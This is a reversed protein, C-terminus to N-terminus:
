FTSPKHGPKCFKNIILNKIILQELFSHLLTYPSMCSEYNIFYKCVKFSNKADTDTPVLSTNEVSYASRKYQNLLINFALETSVLPVNTYLNRTEDLNNLFNM